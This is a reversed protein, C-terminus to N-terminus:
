DEKIITYVRALDLYGSTENESIKSKATEYFENLKKIEKYFETKSIMSKENIDKQLVFAIKEAELIDATELKLKENIAKKFDFTRLKEGIESYKMNLVKSESLNNNFGLIMENYKNTLTKELKGVIIEENVTM